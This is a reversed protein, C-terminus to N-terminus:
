AAPKAKATRVRTLEVRYREGDMDFTWTAKTGPVAPDVRRVRDAMDVIRFGIEAAENLSLIGDDDEDM